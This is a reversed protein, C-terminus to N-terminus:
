GKSSSSSSSGNSSNIWSTLFSGTSSYQSVLTQMAAYEQQLAAQYSDLYKNEASQKSVLATYQANLTNQESNIAGGSSTLNILTLSLRTAVGNSSNFVNNVAQPNAALATNLKTTDLAMNGSSDVTVGLMALSNYGGTASSVVSSTITRIQDGAFQLASDGFLAGNTGGVGGYAQLSQITSNLTNYASVFNNLSSAIASTNLSVGVQVTTGVSASQLNLTLGPLVNSLSNSSNTATQGDVKIVSDQAATQTTLNSTFLQSLGASDTNNGDADTGDVTFANATGPNTSTLVLKSVTGTHTSNDVNIVSAQVSTNGTANNIANAVGALTNNTSDINVNFTSSSSGSGITFSLSGTGVVAASNAFEANTISSQQTALQDVEVNHTAAVAGTGPTVSVISSNSSSASDAQFSNNTQLATVASQFTTLASQLQGIGSLQTNIASAQSSILAKAGQGEAAVLQSVISTINLGNGVGLAGLISSGLQQQNTTSSSISTM